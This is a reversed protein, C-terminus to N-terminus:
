FGYTDDLETFVSDLVENMLHCEAMPHVLPSAINKSKANATALNHCNVPVRTM